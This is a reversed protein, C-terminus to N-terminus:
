IVTLLYSKGNAPSTATGDSAVLTCDAGITPEIVWYGQDLVDNKNISIAPGMTVTPNVDGVRQSTNLDWVSGDAALGIHGTKVPPTPM